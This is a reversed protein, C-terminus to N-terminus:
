QQVAVGHPLFQKKSMTFEVPCHITIHHQLHSEGIHLLTKYHMATATFTRTLVISSDVLCIQHVWGIHKVPWENTSVMAM